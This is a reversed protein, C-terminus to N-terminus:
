PEGGDSPDSPTMIIPFSVELVDTPAEFRLDEFVSVICGEMVTHGVSSSTIRASSIRGEGPIAKAQELTFDVVVKGGLDPNTRLWADYCAKIETLSSRVAAAIGSPNAQFRAPAATADSM